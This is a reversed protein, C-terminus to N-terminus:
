TRQGGQLPSFVVPMIETRRLRGEGNKQVITLVQPGRAPGLPIVLRGGPKLQALLPPPVHDVAEKVVIADYPAHEAWGYYGDGQKVTVKDYGLEKLKQAAEYALPEVVEVSYVKAALRSLVAAMYGAGTGTEFVTKSQDLGALQAMLAILFPSSINQEYGVPLPGHRYAYPRLEEPVFAHRPVDYLAAKVEPDLQTIGIEQGTVLMELEIVAVMEARQQLYAPAAGNEGEESRPDALLPAALWASAALLGLILAPRALM